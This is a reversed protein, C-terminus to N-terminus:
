AQRGSSINITTSELRNCIENISHNTQEVFSATAVDDLGDGNFDGTAVGFPESDAGISYPGQPVFQGYGSNRYLGFNDDNANVYVIDPKRDNNIYGIAAGRPLSGTLLTKHFILTGDGSNLFITISNTGSNVCVVDLKRDDNLDAVLVARPLSGSGIPYVIQSGFIGGGRNFFVGINNGDRNAVIIDDKHDGNLDGVVVSRPSSNSGTSYTIMPAYSNRGTTLFIGVNNGRNNAVVIDLYRDRNLYATAISIPASGAGTPLIVHSAFTGDRQNLFISIYNLGFDPAMIDLYGNCDLDALIVSNVESGSGGTSYTRQGGFSGRGNNNFVTISASKNNAAVIDLDGDNNLDGVALFYTGAPTPLNTPGVFTPICKEFNMVSPCKSSVSSESRHQPIDSSMLDFCWTLRVTNLKM